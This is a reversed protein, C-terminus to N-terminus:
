KGFMEGIKDELDGLGGMNNEGNVFSDLHQGIGAPLKDKLFNVVTKVATTAQEQSIGTKEAVM